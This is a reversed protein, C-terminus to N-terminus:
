GHTLRVLVCLTINMNELETVPINSNFPFTLSAEWVTFRRGLLLTIQHLCGNLCLYGELDLAVTIQTMFLCFLHSNKMIIKKKKKSKCSATKKAPYLFFVLFDKLAIEINLKNNGYSSKKKNLNKNAVM